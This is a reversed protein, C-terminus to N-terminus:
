FTLANSFLRLVDRNLRFNHCYDGDNTNNDVFSNNAINNNRLTLSRHRLGM